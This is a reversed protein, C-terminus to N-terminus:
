GASRTAQSNAGRWYWIAGIVVLHGPVAPYSLAGTNADIQFLAGDEGAGNDGSPLVLSYCLCGPGLVVAGGGSCRKLIPVGDAECAAVDVEREIANSRGVIVATTSQEWVRLVAAQPNADVARLLDEDVALNEEPTPRSDDSFRLTTPWM